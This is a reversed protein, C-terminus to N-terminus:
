APGVGAPGLRVLVYHAQGDDQLPIRGEPVPVGDLLLESVGRNVGHPNEVQIHYHSGGHQYNLEYGIWGSPICPDLVLAGAELRLGLIAELGLRYMWGASGTYWTWGGRGTHPPVSYVDAAIVYPEVRYRELKEPTDAHLIPNLLRFLAEAREGQGLSAYAWVTWIAAHTYQGGNERIGPLYGKIYGPDRPTRDFPPTFLLILREEPKVLNENVAELAREVRELSGAGALVAWSQAISDIRCEQNQASGLPFGDDYFARLYWGGDWAHAEVARALDAARQRYLAAQDNNGRRDCIEAFDKLTRILFWSLWVSEGKGEIGVRNMGDNWDGSGILPLGHPGITAGREIARLCHEYLTFTERTEWYQGYHEDEDSELPPGQLFAVKENLVGEDGTTQVYFATVYPLWLLDDSFRTRVGRGSPPHWWHLVDGAEFQHQAARLLHERALNPAAYVLCMVDQLQDRFGYAGSSQYFASRGWIRCALAQYLLWRNLLLDMAPEPTRVQVKGLLGEWGAQVQEWTALVAERNQYRHVLELAAERGEEQGLLFFVEEVEGEGLDVHLQLAACADLGTQVTGSLGIRQLAAPRSRDGMPGLFEERDATLGHLRKNAAAFATREGFEVNYPNRALIAQTEAEFEPIIYPQMDERNVGLVWEFYGTVTIRRSRKWLNELRLHIIKVPADPAAYVRLSQRLGHSQHEFITYGTGHRVLYPAPGGSPLLTPTWVEGTEEDRLYVAEGPTDSVPDNSWPTLRNEGSNVAWTYGLAAESVLCGFDPNAIVNVWPAPTWCGPELYIWYERGDPSFGGLGNDFLLGQPKELPPTPEPEQEVTLSPTFLPLRSPRRGEVALQEALSGKKGDLLVRAATELLTRDDRSLADAMLIFIGGRQNLWADSGSRNLLRYLAGTLEGGYNAGQENLLVLDIKLHRNRWYAHAQLLDQVLPLEELSGLCALIIPYDGSIAYAWLGPQGKRNEALTEPDARLEDHPFLCASLLRQIRPLQQANLGLQQLEAEAESRAAQFALEIPSWTAYHAALKLAEQHTRAALTVYALRLTGHPPLLVEQAISMVPDLTAGVSGDLGKGNLLAHPARAEEGRGLFLHRDSEYASALPPGTELVALHGLYLSEERGSRPRRRFLLARSEAVWESEIFLKNFAPHRRDAAPPSLCVEAYSTLRLRRPRDSHNTLTLRRIEVDAEPTITIDMGTTIQGDRRLFAAMHPSFVVDMHDAQVGTPQFGASWLRRNDLDQIYIWSGWDGLTPDARWRTLHTDGYASYGGGSATILTGLRGNSLYHVKPPPTSFDARWPTMDVQPQDRHAARGEEFHPQELPASEPVQEQLLLDVSQIRPDSHFRAVMPDGELFNLLALFIMGQHHAMYERVIEYRKGLPMRTQTFDLAEYLGFTGLAGLEELRKLNQIVAQPRFPLALLSAYPAIVLDDGLGRKYGLGPVGFARYQYSQGQDFRYYGSESIGWPVKREKGYAIHIDVAAEASAHLLSRPYSRVLLPPMLYEFM